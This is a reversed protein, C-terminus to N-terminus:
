PYFQYGEIVLSELRVLVAKCFSVIDEEPWNNLFYRTYISAQAVTTEEGVPAAQSVRSIVKGTRADRLVVELSGRLVLQDSIEVHTDARAPEVSCDHESITRLKVFLEFDRIRKVSCISRQGHGGEFGARHGTEKPLYDVVTRMSRLFDNLRHM